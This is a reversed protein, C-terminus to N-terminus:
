TTMRVIGKVKWSTGNRALGKNEGRAGVDKNSNMAQEGERRRRGRRKRRGEASVWMVYAKRM